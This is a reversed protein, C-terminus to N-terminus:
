ARAPFAANLRAFNPAVDGARNRECEYVLARLSTARPLVYDVIAWTDALPEPGHADDVLLLGDVDVEDGGAVHLEVVRELPFNELGATPPLGRLRQFMALHACDLLLGCGSQDSVRAFYDLIHLEGM